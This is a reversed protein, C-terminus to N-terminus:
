WSEHWTHDCRPPAASAVQDDNRDTMLEHLMTLQKLATRRKGDIPAQVGESSLGEGRAPGTICCPTDWARAAFGGQARQLDNM